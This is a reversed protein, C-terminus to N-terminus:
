LAIRQLGDDMRFATVEPERRPVPAIVRLLQALRTVIEVLRIELRIQLEVVDYLRGEVRRLAQEAEGERRAGVHRHPPGLHAHPLHARRAAAVDAQEEAVIERPRRLAAAGPHRAQAVALLEGA